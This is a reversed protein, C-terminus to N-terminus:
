VAQRNVCKKLTGRQIVEQRQEAFNDIRVVRLMWSALHPTRKEYYDGIQKIAKDIQRKTEPAAVVLDLFGPGVENVPAQQVHIPKGYKVLQRYAELARQIFVWLISLSAPVVTFLAMGILTEKMAAESTCARFIFFSPPALATAIVVSRAPKHVKWTAKLGARLSRSLFFWHM